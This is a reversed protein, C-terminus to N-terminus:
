YDLLADDGFMFLCVAENYRVVHHIYVPQRVQIKEADSTRLVTVRHLEAM